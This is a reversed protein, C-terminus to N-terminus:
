KARPGASPDARGASPWFCPRRPPSGGGCRPRMPVSRRTESCRPRDWAAPPTQVQGRLRSTRRSPSRPGSATLGPCVPFVHTPTATLLKGSTEEHSKEVSRQDETSICVDVMDSAFPLSPPFMVQSLGSLSSVPTGSSPSSASSNSDSDQSSPKRTGNAVSSSCVSRSLVLLEPSVCGYEVVGTVSVSTSGGTSQWWRRTPPTDDQKRHLYPWPHSGRCQVPLNLLSLGAAPSCVWVDEESLSACKRCCEAGKVAAGCVCGQAKIPVRDRGGPSYHVHAPGSLAQWSDATGCM